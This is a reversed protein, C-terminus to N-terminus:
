SVIVAKKEHGEVKRRQKPQREVEGKYNTPTDEVTGLNRM